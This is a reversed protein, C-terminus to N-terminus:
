DISKTKYHELQYLVEVELMSQVHEVNPSKCGYSGTLDLRSDRSRPVIKFMEECERM